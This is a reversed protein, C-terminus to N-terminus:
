TVERIKYKSGALREWAHGYALTDHYITGGLTSGNSKGHWGHPPLVIRKSKDVIWGPPIFVSDRSSKLEWGGNPVTGIMAYQKPVHVEGGRKLKYSTVKWGNPVNFQSGRKNPGVSYDWPLMNWNSRGLKGGLVKVIENSGTVEIGRLKAKKLEGVVVAIVSGPAARSSTQRFNLKSKKVGSMGAMCLALSITALGRNENSRRKKSRNAVDTLGNALLWAVLHAAGVYLEDGSKSPMGVQGRGDGHCNIRIKGLHAEDNVWKILRTVRESRKHDKVADLKEIMAVHGRTPAATQNDM